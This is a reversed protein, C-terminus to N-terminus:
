EELLFALKDKTDPSFENLDNFCIVGDNLLDILINFMNSRKVEACVGSHKKDENIKSELKWFKESPECSDDKLLELYSRNLEAIHNEQWQPLKSRFLKWDKENVEM